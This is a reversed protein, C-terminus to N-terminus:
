YLIFIINLLVINLFHIGRRLNGKKSICNFSANKLPRTDIRKICVEFPLYEAMPFGVINTHDAINIM